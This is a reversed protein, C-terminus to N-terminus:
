KYSLRNIKNTLTSLFAQVAQQKVKTAATVLFMEAQNLQTQTLEFEKKETCVNDVEAVSRVEPNEKPKLSLLENVLLSDFSSGSSNAKGDVSMESISSVEEAFLMEESEGKVNPKKREEFCLAAEKPKKNMPYFEPSNPDM